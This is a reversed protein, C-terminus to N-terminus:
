GKVSGVSIGEIFFKQAFIFILLTPILAVCAGAMVVGWRTGFTDNMANLALQLTYKESSRIYLLPGMYDNYGGIFAFLLNTVVIPKSLPLDIRAFIGFWGMGDVKAAEDMEKPIGLMYQRTFFVTGASGFMGPLMLAWFSDLLNIKTFLIYTPVITVVTPIAMTAIYALFIGDRGPFHLRSFAFAALSSFFVGSVATPIVVILTNVFGRIFNAYESIEFVQLYNTIVLNEPIIRIPLAFIEEYPKFSTSLMWFFPIAMIIGLVVAVLYIIIKKITKSM